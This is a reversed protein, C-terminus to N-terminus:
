AWVTGVLLGYLFVVAVGLSGATFFAGGRFGGSGPLPTATTTPTSTTPTGTASSVNTFIAADPSNPALGLLRPCNALSANQLQCATPLQILKNEQVGLSRFQASGNHTLQMIYCLCEPENDKTNKTSACCEKSPSSQKGQAFGLCTMVSQFDKACKTALNDPAGGDGSAALFLLVATLSVCLLPSTQM